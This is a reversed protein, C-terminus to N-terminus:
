KVLYKKLSADLDRPVDFVSSVDVIVLYVHYILLTIIM